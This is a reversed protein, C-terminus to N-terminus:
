EVIKILRGPVKIENEANINKIANSIEEYYDLLVKSDIESEKAKGRFVFMETVTNDFRTAIIKEKGVDNAEMIVYTKVNPTANKIQRCSYQVEGFMTADLYTKVEVAVIPIIIDGSFDNDIVLKVKKGICFDVDKTIIGVKMNNEIKVGAYVGKNYISLKPAEKNIMNQFLYTNMEELFSSRLKSQSTIGYLASFDDIKKLYENILKAAKNFDVLKREVYNIKELERKYSTYVNDMFIQLEKSKGNYNTRIKSKINSEHAYM